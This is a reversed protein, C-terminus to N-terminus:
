EQDARQGGPRAPRKSGADLEWSLPPEVRATCPRTGTVTLMHQLSGAWRAPREQQAGEELGVRRSQEGLDAEPGQSSLGTPDRM